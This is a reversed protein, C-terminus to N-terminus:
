AIKYSNTQVDVIIKKYKPLNLFPKNAFRSVLGGEEDTAILPPIPSATQIATTLQRIQEASEINDGTILFGGVPYRALLAPTMATPDTTIDLSEPQIVFLQAVKEEPTMTAIRLLIPDAPETAVAETVAPVTTTPVTEAPAEACGTLLLLVLLLLMYKRM